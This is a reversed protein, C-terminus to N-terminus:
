VNYKSLWNENNDARKIIQCNMCLVQFGEPFNNAKLWEYFSAGAGRKLQKRHENGGGKIHDISLARIDNFGCKQCVLEPSYYSFIEIKLRDKHSKVRKKYKDPDKKYLKKALLRSYERYCDKCIRGTTKSNLTTETLKCNCKRCTKM